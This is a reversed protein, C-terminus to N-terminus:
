REKAMPTSLYERAKNWSGTGSDLPLGQRKVWQPFETAITAVRQREAAKIYGRQSVRSKIRLIFAADDEPPRRIETPPLAPSKKAADQSTVLEPSFRNALEASARRILTVLEETSLGHFDIETM